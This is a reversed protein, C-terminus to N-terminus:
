YEDISVVPGLRAPRRNPTGLVRGHRFSRRNGDDVDPVSIWAESLPGPADAPLRRFARRRLDRHEHEIVDEFLQASIAVALAADPNRRLADKLAESDRLLCVADVAKGAFGGDVVRTPGQHFAVRLRIREGEGVYRDDCCDRCERRARDGRDRKDGRQDGRDRQDRQDRYPAGPRALALRLESLLGAVVRSEDVGPPLVFLLGGSPRLRAALSGGARQVLSGGARQTLPGGTRQALYLRNVGARRSADAVLDYLHEPGALDAPGDADVAVCLRRVSGSSEAADDTPPTGSACGRRFPARTM